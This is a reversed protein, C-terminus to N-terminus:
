PDQGTPPTDYHNVFFRWRVAKHETSVAHLAPVLSVEHDPDTAPLKSQDPGAELVLVRKGERALRAALPGGGAGSGVIIYDFATPADAEPRPPEPHDTMTRCRPGPVHPTRARRVTLVDEAARNGRGQGCREHGPVM